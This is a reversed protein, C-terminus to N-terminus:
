VSNPEYFHPSDLPVMKIIYFAHSLSRRPFIGNQFKPVIYIIDYNGLRLTWNFLKFNQIWCYWNWLDKCEGKNELRVGTPSQRVRGIWFALKKARSHSSNDPSQGTVKRHMDVPSTLGVSKETPSVAPIDGFSCDFELPFSRVAGSLGVSTWRVGVSM